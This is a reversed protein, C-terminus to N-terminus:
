VCARLQTAQCQVSFPSQQVVSIASSADYSLDRDAPWVSSNYEAITAFM